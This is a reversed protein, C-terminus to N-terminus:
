TVNEFSVVSSGKLLVYLSSMSFIRLPRDEGYYVFVNHQQTRTVFMPPGGSKLCVIDGAEVPVVVDHRHFRHAAQIVSM